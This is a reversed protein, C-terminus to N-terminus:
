YMFTYEKLNSSFVVVFRCGRLFSVLSDGYHLWCSILKLFSTFVTTYLTYVLKPSVIVFHLSSLSNVINNNQNIYLIYIFICNYNRTVETRVVEIVIKLGKSLHSFIHNLLIAYLNSKNRLYCKNSTIYCKKHYKRELTYTWDTEQSIFTM